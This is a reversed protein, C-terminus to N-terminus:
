VEQHQISLISYRHSKKVLGYLKKMKNALEKEETKGGFEKALDM